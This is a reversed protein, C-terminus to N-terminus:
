TVTPQISLLVLSGCPQATPMEIPGLTPEPPLVLTMTWPPMISGTLGTLDCTDTWVVEFPKTSWIKDHLAKYERVQAPTSRPPVVIIDDNDYVNLGVTTLQWKEAALDTTFTGAVHEELCIYHLDDRVVVDDIRYPRASAVWAPVAISSSFATVAVDKYHSAVIHAAGRFEAQARVAYDMATPQVAQLHQDYVIGSSAVKCLGEVLHLAIGDVGTRRIDRYNTGNETFSFGRLIRVGDNNCNQFTCGKLAVSANSSDIILGNGADDGPASFKSAIFEVTRRRGQDV